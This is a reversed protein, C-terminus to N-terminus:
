SGPGDYDSPPSIHGWRLAVEECAASMHDLKTPFAAPAPFIRKGFVDLAYCIKPEAKGLYALHKEAFVAALVASTRCRAERNKASADSKSFLLIVGGVRTENDKGVRHTTGDLAVSVDVGEIQLKPQKSVVAKCSIKALGLSNYANQFAEIAQISLSCDQKVWDTATSKSERAKISEIAEAFVKASRLDDCLYNGIADRAGSYLAVAVTKPYKAGQIISKRRPPSATLYDSLQNASLRPDANYGYKPKPSSMSSM